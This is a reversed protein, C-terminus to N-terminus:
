QSLARDKFIITVGLQDERYSRPLPPLPSASRVARLAALDFSGLGSEQFLQLESVAGQRSIDFRVVAQVDGGVPPPNWHQRILSLLRDVYYNYLRSFEPDSFGVNSTQAAGSSSAEDGGTPSTLEPPSEEVPAPEEPAEVAPARREPEPKKRTELVPADEPPPKKPEPRDPEPEPPKPQPKPRATQPRPTPNFASAPLLTVDVYPEFEPQAFLSPGFVFGLMVAVHAVLSIAVPVRGLRRSLERKRQALLQSISDM